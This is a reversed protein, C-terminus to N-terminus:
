SQVESFTSGCSALRLLKVGGTKKYLDRDNWTSFGDPKPWIAAAALQQHM